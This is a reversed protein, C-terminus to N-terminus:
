CAIREPTFIVDDKCYKVETIQREFDDSATLTQLDVIQPLSKLYIQYISGLKEVGM